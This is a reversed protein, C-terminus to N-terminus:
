GLAGPRLQWLEETPQWALGSSCPLLLSQGQPERLTIHSAYLRKGPTRTFSPMARSGQLFSCWPSATQSLSM